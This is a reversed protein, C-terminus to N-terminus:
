AVVVGRWTAILEPLNNAKSCGVPCDWAAVVRAMDGDIGPLNNAKSCGVPRGM